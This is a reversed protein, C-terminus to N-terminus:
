EATQAEITEVLQGKDYVEHKQKVGAESWFQWVGYPKGDVYPKKTEMQGNEYWTTHVGKPIDMDFEGQSKEKGNAYWASEKGHRKGKQWAGEYEKQGSEYWKLWAGEPLGNVFHRQEKLQGNAHYLVADGTFPSGSLMTVDGQEKLDTLQTGGSGCGVLLAALITCASYRIM